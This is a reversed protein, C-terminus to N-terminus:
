SSCDANLEDQTAILCLKHIPRDYEGDRTKIRVKRVLGDNGPYTGVIRAMKWECRKHKPDLELVLDGIQINDRVRFWKNRRLLNPAFYKMWSRWFDAVRNQASRLLQRPNTREEPEPQPPPNYHGLLLDNPTIPPAEWIDDSSPYLPRGNVMYTIESLITRWQEESYAQNKCTANFAQRVSKILTEVVGNQHSAHPTNWEWRLECSFKDSLVSKVGPIDWNQTIEKLYGQAGVFNTGRDSWCVNPHGRLCAFRRFAMLFADSTKDTVLELHIARSTMCAFIIVQAEKLTKRGLKIQVPGFMDMATNSFAPFGAAVRLNPIQGMLQNLPRKRLKRCIVCKSTVTKAMRRLGIIWFRKRAEHILSKYGCHGRREHLDRLLLIVFPHDKPLIIPKRLEEPLCRVDELRGHARFLSDEDKKAVLKKDLSDENVHFQSWKLLIDDWSYGSSWLGQLDIRFKIAVPLVLGIPDWLQGVLGLCRRKTLVDLEGLDNKKFTFTDLQKDWSLGLLDTFREGNSQDIEAENSHWTKIQFNGKALVADIHSIIQKAKSVTERSGGIDDVYVHQRLEGAAEPFEANSLKALTNIANTAVDPAPKDGFNLRLWQYVTPKDRTNSRWLFRHYVQDEPHVLIQNFMKRVDGTFAVEDWRWAALVDLLSNIFNPGKELYDNLSLGDHGKSSSDFVLRVKTTREPTFVAQLPLYWEPKDHAIQEPPIMTIFNQDLLKQVEEKVVEFCGKKMFGREASLMRKLAIDYNSRKPPGGEKWPMKVQIRGDVLTTSAALSKVFKSERLVNETCTCLKTPKVGLLDQYLLKKIDEEVSVTGVEISQIESLTSGSSEFQGLVYWGFCNRKGIPEGPEGSVTHIDIFAEVFDTGILLDIAGGSLHIKDSVNKLHSYQRVSEKSITKASSCPRTVTYVQLTKTIDEDSPPAVTVDIIEFPESKKKGGALNMTLRTAAGNLGLRGAASKSLLSTNSGSDLM